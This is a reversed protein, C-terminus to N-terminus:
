LDKSAEEPLRKTEEKQLAQILRDVREAVQFQNDLYFTFNPVFQFFSQKAFHARIVPTARRFYPAFAGNWVDELSEHLPMFPTVYVACERLDTSLRINTVTMPGPFAVVQQNEDFIPPLEQRLFIISLIRKIEKAARDKRPSLAKKPVFLNLKSPM